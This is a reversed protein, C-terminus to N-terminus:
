YKGSKQIATVALPLVAVAIIAPIYYIKGDSYDADTVFRQDIVLWAHAIVILLGTVTTVSNHWLPVAIGYVLYPLMGAVFVSVMLTYGAEFHPVLASILSLLLGCLLFFYGATDSM